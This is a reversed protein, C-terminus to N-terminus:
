TALRKWLLFAAGWLARGKQQRASAMGNEARGIAFGANTYGSLLAGLDVRGGSLPSRASM